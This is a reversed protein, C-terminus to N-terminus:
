EIYQAKMDYLISILHRILRGADAVVMTRTSHITANMNCGGLSNQEDLAMHQNPGLFINGSSLENTKILEVVGHWVRFKGICKSCTKLQSRLRSDRWGM